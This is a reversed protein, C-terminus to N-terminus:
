QAAKSFFLMHQWPLKDFEEALEFGNAGLEKIVQERTMKHLPLIPVAPDEGRFEVLVVRGDKALSRRIARLMHEPHSFEHYVDVLLVLDVSEKPLKPDTLTGEILEIQDFGYRKAREALMDLMERQIDVALVKGERGVLEALRLTHYGNGCGLDCVTQGPQVNLAELMTKADEEAQREDRTLWAAHSYHMTPAIRRGMYEKLPPPEEAAPEGRDERAADAAAGSEADQAAVPQWVVAGASIALIGAFLSACRKM